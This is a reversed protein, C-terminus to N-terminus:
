RIEKIVLDRGGFRECIADKLTRCQPSVGELHYIGTTMNQMKLYPAYSLGDFLAQMDWLEYGSKHWWEYEAGQYKEYTDLKEGLNLFREVGVKRVFEAKVDANKEEHYKTIDLKEAPTVALYEPVTVGNLSYIKYDGLGAYVLAAGGDRHLVRNENLHIETPKECVITLNDLPYIMGIHATAEWKKYKVWLEQDIEVGVCEFMYDYFSFVSAFFSGTQYPLSAKPIVYKKPNGNFVTVMEERLNELPVKHEDFLVCAVWAEIPNDVIMLPAPAMNIIERFGDVTKQTTDFDLRDTNTGIKIWKEVYAPMQAKQEETLEEIKKKESM